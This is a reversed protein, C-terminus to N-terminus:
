RKLQKIKKKLVLHIEEIKLQIAMQKKKKKKLRFLNRRVDKVRNHDIEKELRFANRVGKIATDDIWKKLGFLNRVDKTINEEIEKTKKM